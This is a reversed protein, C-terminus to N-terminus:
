LNLLRNKIYIFQNVSVVAHKPWIRGGGPHDDLIVTSIASPKVDTRIQIQPATDLISRTGDSKILKTVSVYRVSVYM